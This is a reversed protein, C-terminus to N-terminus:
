SSRPQPSDIIRPVLFFGDGHSPSNAVAAEPSLSGRRTDEGFVNAVDLAFVSPDVDATDLEDLSEVYRLVRAFHGHLSRLDGAALSIRALRAVDAVLEETIEIPV